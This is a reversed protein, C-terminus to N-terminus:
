ADLWALYSQDNKLAELRSRFLDLTNKDIGVADICVTYLLINRLHLLDDIYDFWETKFHAETEYGKLYHTWYFAAFNSASQEGRIKTNNVLYYLSIAVDNAFYHYESDDFDFTWLDQGTWFFNGQHLDGHILGYNETTRPISCMKQILKEAHGVIYQDEPPITGEFKWVSDDQWEQRKYAVQSPTYERSLRHIKGTEKGLQYLIDATVEQIRSGPAKEFAYILWNGKGSSTPLTEVLHGNVSPIALSTRVGNQALYNVYELEGLIYAVSRRITHTIKLIYDEGAKSYAYVNSEFAKLKNVKESNIDFLALAKQYTQEDFQQRISELM